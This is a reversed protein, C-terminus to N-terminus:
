SYSLIQKLSVYCFKGSVCFLEYFQENGILLSGKRYRIITKM